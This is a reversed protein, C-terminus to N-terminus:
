RGSRTNVRSSIRSTRSRCGSHSRRFAWTSCAFPRGISSLAAYRQHIACRPRRAWLDFAPRQPFIRRMQPVAIPPQGEDGVGTVQPPRSGARFTKSFDFRLLSKSRAGGPTGQLGIRGAQRSRSRRAFRKRSPASPFYIRNGIEGRFLPSAPSLINLFKM